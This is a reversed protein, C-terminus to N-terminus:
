ADNPLLRQEVQRRALPLEDLGQRIGRQSSVRCSGQQSGVLLVIDLDTDQHACVLLSVVETDVAVSPEELRQNWTRSVLVALHHPDGLVILHECFPDYMR